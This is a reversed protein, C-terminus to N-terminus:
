FPDIMMICWGGAVYLVEADGGNESHPSTGVLDNGELLEFYMVKYMLCTLVRSVSRLVTHVRQAAAMPCSRDTVVGSEMAISTMFSVRGQCKGRPFDMWQM